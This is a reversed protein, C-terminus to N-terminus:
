FKRAQPQVYTSEQSNQLLKLFVKKCFVEPHSSRINGFISKKKSLVAPKAFNVVFMCIMFRIEEFFFLGTKNQFAPVNRLESHSFFCIIFVCVDTWQFYCNAFDVNVSFGNM